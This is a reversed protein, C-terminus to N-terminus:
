PIFRVARVVGNSGVAVDATVQSELDEARAPVGYLALTARPLQVRYIDIQEFPAVPEAYPIAIFPASISEDDEKPHALTRRQPPALRDRRRAVAVHEAGAPRTGPEVPPSGVQIQYGSTIPATHPRQGIRQTGFWILLMLATCVFAAAGWLRNAKRCRNTRMRAALFSEIRPPAEHNYVTRLARLAEDLLDQESNASM